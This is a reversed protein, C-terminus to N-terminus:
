RVKRQLQGMAENDSEQLLQQLIKMDIALEEQVEKAQTNHPGSCYRGCIM